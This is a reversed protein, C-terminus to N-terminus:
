YGRIGPWSFIGGSVALCKGPHTWLPTGDDKEPLKRLEIIVIKQLDTFLEPRGNEYRKGEINCFEFVHLYQKGGLLNYDLIIVSIVQQIRDFAEGSHIQDCVM